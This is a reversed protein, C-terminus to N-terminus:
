HPLPLLSHLIHTGVCRRRRSWAGYSLPFVWIDLNSILSPVATSKAAIGAVCFELSAIPDNGASLSGLGQLIIDIVIYEGFGEGQKYTLTIISRMLGM